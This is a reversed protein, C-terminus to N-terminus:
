LIDRATQASTSSHRRPLKQKEFGSVSLYLQTDTETLYAENDWDLNAALNQTLPQPNLPKKHHTRVFCTM